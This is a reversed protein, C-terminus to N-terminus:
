GFMETARLKLEEPIAIGLAAATARSIKRGEVYGLERLNAALNKPPGMGPILYGVVRVRAPEPFLTSGAFSTADAPAAAAAALLAVFRRRNRDM